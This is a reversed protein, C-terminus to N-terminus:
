AEARIAAVDQRPPTGFLRRYERSFQSPSEYGVRFAAQAADLGEGVMARRAEQLRLKKQYQLPTMATVSKFHQHFASPSMSVHKALWDIRLTETFHDKLWRIAKAIRHAPAGAMAMQVLREGQSSTLVRHTIERLVLPALPGLDTPSELLAVLRTVADFLAPEIPTVSLGRTPPGLSSVATGAALLEGVMAPDLGLCVGLYPEDPSADVVRAEVPLDVSVVLSQAQQMLYTEGGLRVEKSGQVIVCFCPEYVMATLESPTSFRSLKLSPLATDHLDDGRTLRGIASALSAVGETTVTSM